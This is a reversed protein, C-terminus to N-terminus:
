GYYDICLMTLDDFRDTEGVFEDVKAKVRGIIEDPKADPNTNLAAIMRDMGFMNEASDIAEPVGDTYLFLSDGKKLTFEYNKYRIGEMGGVIFSHNDHLQEFERGNKRIVPYEHGANAATIRGTRIDLIGLWVTVFMDAQNKSCIRENVFSLIEAPTGGMLTRDSILIKTAMMFLAAPVGKGSVDAIVMALHDEDILFFDYFDGGVEKATYMAAYIDFESREPFAPFITPVMSSQIRNATDLEAKVSATARSIEAQELVIAHGRKAILVSVMTIVMFVLLRPLFGHLLTRLLVRVPDAGASTITRRLGGEIVIATGDPPAPYFNLDVIGFYLASISAVALLLISAIAVIMTFGKSFYRSSILVPLVMLLLVNHNLVSFLDTCVALMSLIMVYKLWRKRKKKFVKYFILPIGLLLMGQAALMNMRLQPITFVGFLNLVWSLLLIVACFVDVMAALRNSQFENDEFIERTEDNEYVKLYTKISDIM